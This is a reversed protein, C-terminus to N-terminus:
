LLEPNEYINGIIELNILNHMPMSGAYYQGTAFQVPYWKISDISHINEVEKAKANIIDGEFIEKGTKDKLGTYQMLKILSQTYTDVDTWNYDMYNDIWARFKIERM